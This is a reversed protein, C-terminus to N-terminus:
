AQPQAYGQQQQDGVPGIGIDGAKPDKCRLQPHQTQHVCNDQGEQHDAQCSAGQRPTGPPPPPGQPHCDVVHPTLKSLPPVPAAALWVPWIATGSPNGTRWKTLPSTCGKPHKFAQLRGKM